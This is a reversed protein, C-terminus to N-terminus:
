DKLLWQCDWCSMRSEKQTLHSAQSWELKSGLQKTCLSVKSGLSRSLDCNLDEKLGAPVQQAPIEGKSPPSDSNEWSRTQPQTWEAMASAALDKSQAGEKPWNETEVEFTVVSVSGLTTSTPRMTRAWAGNLSHGESLDAERHDQVGDQLVSLCKLNTHPIATAWWPFVSGSGVVHVWDRPCMTSPSFGIRCYTM